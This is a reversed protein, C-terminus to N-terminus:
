MRGSHEQARPLHLWPLVGRVGCLDPFELLVIGRREGDGEYGDAKRKTGSIQGSGVGADRRVHIGPIAESGFGSMLFSTLLWQAQRWDTACDRDLFRDKRIRDDRDTRCSM